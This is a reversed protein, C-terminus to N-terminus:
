RRKQGVAWALLIVGLSALVIGRPTAVFGIVKLAVQELGALGQRATLLAYETAAQAIALTPMM